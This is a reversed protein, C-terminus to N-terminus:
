HERRAMLRRYVIGGIVIIGILMLPNGFGFASRRRRKLQRGAKAAKPAEAAAEGRRARRTPAPRNARRYIALRVAELAEDIITDFLNM